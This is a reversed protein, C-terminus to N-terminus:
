LMVPFAFSRCSLAALIFIVCTKLLVTTAITIAPARSIAGAAAFAATNTPTAM